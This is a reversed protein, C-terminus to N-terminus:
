SCPHSASFPVPFLSPLKASMSARTCRAHTKLTIKLFIISIRPALHMVSDFVADGVHHNLFLEEGSSCNYSVNELELCITLKSNTYAHTCVCVTAEYSIYSGGQKQWLFLARVWRMHLRTNLHRYCVYPSSNTLFVTSFRSTPPFLLYWDTALATHSHPSLNHPQLSSYCAAASTSTFMQTCYMHSYKSM